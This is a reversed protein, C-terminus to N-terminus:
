KQQALWVTIEEETEPISSEGLIAIEEQRQKLLQHITAQPIVSHPQATAIDKGLRDAISTLQQSIFQVFIRGFPVFTAGKVTRFQKIALEVFEAAKGAIGATKLMEYIRLAMDQMRLLEEEDGTDILLRTGHLDALLNVLVTREKEGLGTEAAAVRAAAARSPRRGYWQQQTTFGLLPDAQPTTDVPPPSSEPVTEPKVPYPEVTDPQKILDHIYINYINYIYYYAPYPTATYPLAPFPRFAYTVGRFAGGERTEKRECYGCAILDSLLRYVKDRSIGGAKCLMAPSVATQTLAYSLLGRAEFTLRPDLEFSSPDNLEGSTADPVPKTM